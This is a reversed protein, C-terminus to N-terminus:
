PSMVSEKLGLLWLISFSYGKTDMYIDPHYLIWILLCAKCCFRIKLRTGVKLNQEQVNYSRTPCAGSLNQRILLRIIRSICCM